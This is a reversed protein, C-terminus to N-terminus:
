SGGRTRTADGAAPLRGARDTVGNEIEASSSMLSGAKAYSTDKALVTRSGLFTFDKADFVWETRFVHRSDERVIGLGGRGIADRADPAATVGPIRAAARYLAAATRPPMVEGLLDGIEDFVWQDPESDNTSPMRSKLYALLEDPDTPLSGLWKYTPRSIGAPTGGTDGFEANLRSTVGDVRVLGQRMVPAPDQSLWKESDQLPGLLAKGSTIDAGRVKERTYVYQDDRVTPVARRGAADSIRALVAAVPQMRTDGAGGGPTQRGTHTLAVGATLAGAVALATAPALLAPRLLRRPRRPAPVATRGTGTGADTDADIHRLLRERHHLFREAPLDWEAPAPLMRAIEDRDPVAAADEAVGTAINKTDDKM